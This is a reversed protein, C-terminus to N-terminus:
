AAFGADMRAVAPKTLKLENNPPENNWSRSKM